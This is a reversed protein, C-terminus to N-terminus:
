AHDPQPKPNVSKAEEHRKVDIAKPLDCGTFLPCAGCPNSRLCSGNFTRWGLASATGGIALLGGCRVCDRLFVRRHRMIPNRETAKM